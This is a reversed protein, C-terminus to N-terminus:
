TEANLYWVRYGWWTAYILYCVYLLYWIALPRCIRFLAIALAIALLFYPAYFVLSLWLDKRRFFIWNWAANSGLLALVIALTTTTWYQTPPSGLISNLILFFLVYYGFGIISWGWLPLALQPHQLEAFRLKVNKGALLGELTATLLCVALSWAWPHRIPLLEAM